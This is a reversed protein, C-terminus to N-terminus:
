RQMNRVGGGGPMTGLQLSAPTRPTSGPTTPTTISVDFLKLLTAAINVLSLDAYAPYVFEGPQIQQNITKISRSRICGEIKNALTQFETDHGRKYTEPM